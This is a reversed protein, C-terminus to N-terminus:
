DTRPLYVRVPLQVPPTETWPDPQEMSPVRSPHVACGTQKRSTIGPVPPLPLPLQTGYGQSLLQSFTPKTM